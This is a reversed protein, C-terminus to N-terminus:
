TKNKNMENLLMSLATGCIGYVLGLDNYTNNNVCYDSIELKDEIKACLEQKFTFKNTAPIIRLIFLLGSLGSNINLSKKMFENKLMDDIDIKSELLNIHREWEPIDKVSQLHYISALLCIRNCNLAPFCRHIFITLSDIIKDIKGNHFNLKYLEALIYIYVPFKYNNLNFAFPENTIKNYEDKNNITDIANILFIIIDKKIQTIETGDNIKNAIDYILYTMIGLLIPYMRFLEDMTKTSIERFIYNDIDYIADDIDPDILKNKALYKIGWLIGCLGSEFSIDNLSYHGCIDDILEEAKQKYEDNNTYQYLLFLYICIGMKGSYLGPDEIEQLKQIIINTHTKIKTNKM